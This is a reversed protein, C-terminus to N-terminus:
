SRMMRMAVIIAMVIILVVLVILLYDTITMGGDSEPSDPVYGSKEIGTIQLNISIHEGDTPTGAATFSLNESFAGGDVSLKATGSYGNKLTIKVDHTGAAVTMKYGYIYGAETNGIMGYKMLNGGITVDAVGENAILIVDYIYTEVVAYLTQDKNLDISDYNGGWSMKGVKAEGTASTAWGELIANTVPAKSVNITTVTADSSAYATFWVAGNVTFVTGNMDDLAAQVEESVSTGALVYANKMGTVPGVVSAAAGTSSRTYDSSTMGVYLTTIAANGPSTTSSGADVNLVGNELVTTKASTLTMGSAVSVTGSIVLNDITAGDAVLTAGSAVTFKVGTVLGNKATVSGASVAISAAKKDTTDFDAASGYIEMVGENDLVVLDKVNAVTLSADGVSVVGNFTGNAYTVSSDATTVSGFTGDVVTLSSATLTSGAAVVIRTCDDTADFVLDGETVTGYVTIDGTIDAVNALATSVASVVFDGDAEYYAGAIRSNVLTNKTNTDTYKLDAATGDVFVIMGAGDLIITSTKKESTNYATTDFENQATIQQETAITGAVTVTVGNVVYLPAYRSTSSLTVGVPVTIDAYLKVTVDGATNDRTIEVTEGAKANALASYINTYTIPGDNVLKDTVTVDCVTKQTADGTKKNDIQLTGNVIVQEKGATIKAGAEVIVKVDNTNAESITLTSDTASSKAFVVKLPAGITLDETVTMHGYITITEGFKTDAVTSKAAEVANELTSYQYYTTKTTGVTVEYSLEAATLTGTAIKANTIILGEGKVTISGTNNIVDVNTASNDLKGTVELAGASKMNVGLGNILETDIVNKATIAPVTATAAIDAAGFFQMTVDAYDTTTAPSVLAAAASGSVTLGHNIVTVDNTTASTGFASVTVTGTLKAIKDGDNKFLVYNGTDIEVKGVKMGKDTVKIQDHVKMYTSVLRFEADTSTMNVTMDVATATTVTMSANDVVVSGANNITVTGVFGNVTVTGENAIVPTGTGSIMGTGEIALAGASKIAVEVGTALKLTGSVTVTGSISADITKVVDMVGGEVISLDGSIDMSAGIEGGILLKGDEDVIVKAGNEVILNGLITITNGNTITWTTGAKVIVNQSQPFEISQTTEGSVTVDKTNYDTYNICTVTALMTGYNVVTGASAVAPTAAVDKILIKAGEPSKYIKGSQTNEFSAYNGVEVNGVLIIKGSNELVAQKTIKGNSDVTGAELSIDVNANTVGYYNPSATSASAAFDLLGTIEFTGGNKVTIADAPTAPAVAAASGFALTGDVTLKYGDNIQIGNENDVIVTRGADIVVNKDIQTVASPTPANVIVVPYGLALKENLDAANDVEPATIGVVVQTVAAPVKYCDANLVYLTNASVANTENKLEIYGLVDVKTAITAQGTVTVSGSDAIITSTAESNNFATAATIIGTVIVDAGNTTTVDAKADLTGGITVDDLKIDGKAELIGATFEGALVNNTATLSLKEATIGKFDYSVVNPISTIDSYFTANVNSMNYITVETVVSAGSTSDIKLNETVAACLKLTPTDGVSMYIGSIHAASGTAISAAGLELDGKVATLMGGTVLTGTTTIKLDTGTTTFTTMEDFIINDLSVEVSDGVKVTADFGATTGLTIASTTATTGLAKGSNVAFSIATVPTALAYGSAISGVALLNASTAAAGTLEVGDDVTAPNTTAGTFIYQGASVAKITNHATTGAEATAAGKLTVGTATDFNVAYKGDSGATIASDVYFITVAKSTALTIKLDVNKLLFIVSGDPVTIQSAITHGDADKGDYYYGTANATGTVDEVLHVAGATSQSTADSDDAVMPIAAFVAFVM